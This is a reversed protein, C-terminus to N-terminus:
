WDKACFTVRRAGRKAFENCLHTLKNFEVLDSSTSVWRASADTFWIKTAEVSALTTSLFLADGKILYAATDWM